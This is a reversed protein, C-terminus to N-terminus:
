IQTQCLVTFGDITQFIFSPFLSLQKGKKNKIRASIYSQLAIQFDNTLIVFIM